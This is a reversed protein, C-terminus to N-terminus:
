RMWRWRNDYDKCALRITQRRGDCSRVIRCTAGEVEKKDGLWGPACSADEQEKMKEALLWGTEVAKKRRIGGPHWKTAPWDWFNSVAQELTAGLKSMTFGSFTDAELEQEYQSYEDAYVHSALHHGVEHAMTSVDGWSARGNSWSFGSRNYVIFRQGGRITAFAVAYREIDAALIAFNQRIGVSDTIWGVIKLAENSPAGINSVRGFVPSSFRFGCIKGNFLETESDQAIAPAPFPFAAM